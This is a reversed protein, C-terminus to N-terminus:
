LRLDPFRQRVRERRLGEEDCRRAEAEVDEGVARAHRLRCEAPVRAGLVDYHPRHVEGGVKEEEGGGEAGEQQDDRECVRALGVLLWQEEGEEAAGGEGGGAAREETGDDGSAVPQPLLRRRAGNAKRTSEHHLCGRQENRVLGLGDDGGGELAVRAM